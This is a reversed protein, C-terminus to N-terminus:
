ASKGERQCPPLPEFEKKTDHTHEDTVQVSTIRHKTRDCTIHLKVFGRRVQHKQRMWEGRNQVRLGTSDFIIEVPGDDLKSMDLPVRFLRRGGAYRPTAQFRQV